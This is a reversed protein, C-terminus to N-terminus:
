IIPAVDKRGYARLQYSDWLTMVGMVTPDLVNAADWEGVTDGSNNVMPPSGGSAAAGYSNFVTRPDTSFFIGTDGYVGAVTGRHLGTASVPDSKTGLGNAGPLIYGILEVTTKAGVSGDGIAIPSQGKMPINRFGRPDSADPFVYAADLVTVGPPVYFTQYGGVGTDTGPGPTTKLLVWFEDGAQVLPQGLGARQSMLALYDNAFSIGTARTDLNHGWIPTQGCGLIGLVVFAVLRLLLELRRRLSQTESLKLTQKGGGPGAPPSVNERM